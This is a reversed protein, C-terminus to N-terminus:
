VPVRLQGFGDSRAGAARTAPHPRLFGPCPMCRTLKLVADHTRDDRATWAWLQPPPTGVLLVARGVGSVEGAQERAADAPPRFSPRDRRMRRSRGGRPRRGRGRAPRDGRSRHRGCRHAQPTNHPDGVEHLKLEQRGRDTPNTGITGDRAKTGTPPRNPERKPGNSGDPTTWCPRPTNRGPSGAGRGPALGESVPPLTQGTRVGDRVAHREM